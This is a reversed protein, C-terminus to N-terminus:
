RKASNYAASFAAVVAAHLEKPAPSFLVHVSKDAEACSGPPRLDPLVRTSRRVKAPDFTEPDVAQGKFPLKSNARENPNVKRKRKRKLIKKKNRLKEM